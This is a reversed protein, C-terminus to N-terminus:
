VVVFGWSGDCGEFVLMVIDLEGWERGGVNEGRRIRCCM